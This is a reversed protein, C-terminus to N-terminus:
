GVFTVLERDRMQVFRLPSNLVICPHLTLAGFTSLNKVSLDWFNVLVLSSNFIFFLPPYWAIVGLDLNWLNGESLPPISKHLQPDLDGWERLFICSNYTPHPSLLSKLFLLFTINKHKLVRLVNPFFIVKTGM